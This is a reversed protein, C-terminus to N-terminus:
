DIDSMSSRWNAASNKGTDDAFPRRSLLPLLSRRGFVLAALTLKAKHAGHFYDYFAAGAIIGFRIMRGIWTLWTKVGFRAAIFFGVGLLLAALSSLSLM